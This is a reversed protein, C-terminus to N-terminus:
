EATDDAAERLALCHAVVEHLRQHDEQLDLYGILAEFGTAQHYTKLSAHKASSHPSANRGKKFFRVEDETLFDTALMADMLVEQAGASVFHIATQHLQQPKTFGSELLHTRVASEWVADGLYALALGNIQEIAIQEM